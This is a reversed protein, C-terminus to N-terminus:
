REEGFWLVCTCQLVFSVSCLTWFIFGCQTLSIPIKIKNRLTWWFVRDNMDRQWLYIRQASAYPVSYRISLLSAASTQTQLEFIHSKRIQELKQWTSIRYRLAYTPLKCKSGLDGLSQAQLQQYHNLHTICTMLWIIMVHLGNVPEQLGSVQIMIIVNCTTLVYNSNASDIKATTALVPKWFEVM